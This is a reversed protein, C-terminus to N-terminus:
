GREYIDQIKGKTKGRSSGTHAGLVQPCSALKDRRKAGVGMVLAGGSPPGFRLGGCSFRAGRLPTFPGGVGKVGGGKMLLSDAPIRLQCRKLPALGEPGAGVPLGPRGGSAWALVKAEVRDWFVIDWGLYGVTLGEVLRM